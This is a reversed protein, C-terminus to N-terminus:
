CHLRPGHARSTELPEESHPWTARAPSRPRRSVATGGGGTQPHALPETTPAAPTPSAGLCLPRALVGWRHTSPNLGRGDSSGPAMTWARKGTAEDLGLDRTRGLASCAAKRVLERSGARPPLRVGEGGPRAPAPAGGAGAEPHPARGAGAPDDPAVQGLQAPRLHTLESARATLLALCAAARLHRVGAVGATGKGPGGRRPGQPAPCSGELVPSAPVRPQLRSRSATSTGTSRAVPPCGQPAPARGERGRPAELSLRPAVAPRSEQLWLGGVGSLETGGALRQGGAQPPPPLGCPSM